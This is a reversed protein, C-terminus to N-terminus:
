RRLRGAILGLAIVFWCAGPLWDGWRAYLSGRVDLPLRALLIGPVKKYQAWESVPLEDARPEIEWVDGQENRERLSPRLVRGNGDIVASVGMNVSRAVTRRCEIARFRCIALHQEHEATGEFWGDNSINLIFDVPPGDAHTVYGRAMAPDTDEYCIVVGFRYSGLPLRPQGRGATVSYDFDYPSFYNMFPLTERFPIYEGFPVRHIKDYRGPSSGDPLILLASNFRERQGPGSWIRSNVGLLMPTGFQAGFYETAERRSLDDWKRVEKPAERAPADPAIQEWDFPWSTEPWVILEPKYAAARLALGAYHKIMEGAASSRADGAPASSDNRLRQDLNGQVLAVRPGVRFDHQGLRWTGYAFFATFVLLVLASQAVLSARRSAPQPLGFLGYVLPRRALWEFVVANVAAVLATVAYGGALDSIQILALFDHQTHALFYWPFGELFHGRVYELAVWVLPVSAVLPLGLRDLRRLLYLAPPVFLSCHVTLLLWTAVMRPDAVRMWQLVPCYFCLGGLWAALYLRWPRQPSRVLTLWPVLAVWALWGWAVPFFCLWLLVSSALAPLLAALFPPGSTADDQPRSQPTAHSATMRRSEAPALSMPIRGHLSPRGETAASVPPMDLVLVPFMQGARHTLDGTPLLVLANAHTLGRLDPSGFWPTPRVQLGCLSLSLQAPHYTPRDTRYVFDEALAAPVTASLPKAHGALRRLAPRVFLEFCVFSAVPNGPLGFVLTRREAERVGFFVPKGPKMEVKHFIPTVGAERLVDPVLDVKGASVGGSLILVDHTLGEAVLPRLSDLRDRAIGLYDPQIGARVTQAVLMPGNSNRIEGPGPVEYAEVLEDGTSLVAVSPRPQVHVLACGVAALVGIEQPRLVAGAHLITEGQRMERGRPLVNAGPKVTEVLLQVHEDDLRKTREHPVVSDAGPPLPAGTMIRAAEGGALTRRPTQGALIEEVVRLERCESAVDQSRLAYGDMLAKDFPPMDLDSVVDESLLLGNVDWPLLPYPHAPLPRAHDLVLQQAESVPLM